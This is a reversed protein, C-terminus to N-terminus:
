PQVGPNSRKVFPLAQPTSRTLGPSYRCVSTSVVIRWHHQPASVRQQLTHAFATCVLLLAATAYIFSLNPSTWPLLKDHGLTCQVRSCILSHLQACGMSVRCMGPQGCSAVHFLIWWIPCGEEVAELKLKSAGHASFTGLKFLSSMWWSLRHSLMELNQWFTLTLWSVTIYPPPLMMRHRHKEAVPAACKTLMSPLPFPAFYLSIILFFQKMRWVFLFWGQVFLMEASSFALSTILFSFPSCEPTILDFDM